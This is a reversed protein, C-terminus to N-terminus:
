PISCTTADAVGGAPPLWPVPTSRDVPPATGTMNCGRAGIPAPEHPQPDREAFVALNPERRVAVDGPDPFTRQASGVERDGVALPERGAWLQRKTESEGGAMLGFTLEKVDIDVGFLERADVETDPAALLTSGHHDPLSNPIDTM